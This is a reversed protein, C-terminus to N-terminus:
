SIEATLVVMNVACVRPVCAGICASEARVCERCASKCACIALVKARVYPVFDRVYESECARVCTHM